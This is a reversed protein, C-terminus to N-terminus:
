CNALPKLRENRHPHPVNAAADQTYNQAYNGTSKKSHM